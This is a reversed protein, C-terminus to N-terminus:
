GTILNPFKRGIPNMSKYMVYLPSQAQIYKSVFFPAETLTYTLDALATASM